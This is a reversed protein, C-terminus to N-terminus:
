LQTLRSVIYSTEHIQVSIQPCPLLAQRSHIYIHRYIFIYNRTYINSFAFALNQPKWRCDNGSFKGLIIIHSGYNYIFRISYFFIALYFIGEILTFLLEFHLINPWTFVWIKWRELWVSGGPKKCMTLVMLEANPAIAEIKPWM